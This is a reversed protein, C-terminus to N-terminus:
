INLNVSRIRYILNTAHSLLCPSNLPSRVYVCGIVMLFFLAVLLFPSLLLLSIWGAKDEKFGCDSICGCPFNWTNCGGWCCALEKDISVM